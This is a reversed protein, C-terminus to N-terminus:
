PTNDSNVQANTSSNHPAMIKSGTAKHFHLACISSNIPALVINLTYVPRQRVALGCEAERVRLQWCTSSTFSVSTNIPGTSSVEVHTATFQEWSRLLYKRYQSGGNMAAENESRVTHESTVNILFFRIRSTMWVWITHDIRENIVHSNKQLMLFRYRTNDSRSSKCFLGGDLKSMVRHCNVLRCNSM